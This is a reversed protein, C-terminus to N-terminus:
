VPEGTIVLCTNQGGFGFSNSIVRRVKADRAVNPVVDLPIAPDPIAYNITPPIRQNIITLASVVAEIAGAATLTHGIMSKNSSIPIDKLREGFVTSVGLYEMKDNEPTSTGHANIYDVDAPTVGADALANRMCSIVPKGDPSSRTRHFNDAKEGCGEVVALIKAGRAVAHDYSELVVAGAGEALVFGDRNKSFPRSAGAPAANNTSLASLLSFRVVSEATISGDAGIALAADCEGRQIAEVGLQIATAGSACATTLSIPSGKTGFHEALREPVVGYKSEEYFPAFQPNAAVRVLDAYEIKDNAGSADALAYRQTWEIEIPPFALFFPGPFDGKALGSQEIAENGALRALKESLESSVMGPEFAHDVAGSITTRLGETSFRTISRIGSEGATLRNWNDDKGSGLPSVIGMGTIVVVPRGKKDHLAMPVRRLRRARRAGTRRRALSRCQHRRGPPHRNRAGRWHRRQRLASVANGQAGGSLRDRYQRSVAGGDRQRYLHDHRSGPPRDPGADRTRGVDGTRGRIRRFDGRCQHSRRWGRDGEVRRSPDRLYGRSSASQPEIAREGLPGGAERRAKGCAGRSELVVFAGMAALALAGAPGRDWVPRFPAELLPTGLRFLLVLDWRTGNYAGGVLTIDSQGAAIRAHAVRLADAGSAEEGMFTRSSGVVGHVLSINGALLNPLQALFLTPRLDSMLRENVFADRKEVNRVDTLIATDVAVDREGGGAAVIMDTKDLIDTNKAIGADTLALGAAYVGIRQWAEMQRQDGKKPIQSDFNIPPTPFTIYPAFTKDDYPPEVGAM